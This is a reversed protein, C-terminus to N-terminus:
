SVIQADQAGAGVISERWASLPCGAGEKWHGEAVLTSGDEVRARFRLSKGNSSSQLHYKEKEVGELDWLLQHLWVQSTSGALGWRQLCGNSRSQVVFVAVSRIGHNDKEVM